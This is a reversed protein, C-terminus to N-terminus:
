QPPFMSLLSNLREPLFAMLRCLHESSPSPFLITCLCASLSRGGELIGSSGLPRQMHDERIKGLLFAYLKGSTPWEKLKDGFLSRSGHPRM